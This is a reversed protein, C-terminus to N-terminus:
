IILYLSNTGGKISGNAASKSDVKVSLTSGLKPSANSTSEISLM